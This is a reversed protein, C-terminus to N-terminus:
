KSHLSKYIQRVGDRLEAGRMKKGIKFDCFPCQIIGRGKVFLKVYCEGCYNKACRNCRINKKIKQFCIKCNDKEFGRIINQIHTKVTLWTNEPIIVFRGKKNVTVGVLKEEPFYTYEFSDNKFEKSILMQFLKIKDGYNMTM